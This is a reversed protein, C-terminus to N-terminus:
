TIGSYCSVPGLIPDPGLVLGDRFRVQITAGQEAQLPPSAEDEELIEACVGLDPHIVQDMGERGASLFSM